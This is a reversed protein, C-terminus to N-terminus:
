FIQAFLCFYLKHVIVNNATKM